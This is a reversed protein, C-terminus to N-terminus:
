GEDGKLITLCARGDEDRTSVCKLKARELRKNDNRVWLSFLMQARGQRRAKASVAPIAKFLCTQLIDKLRRAETQEEVGDPIQVYASYVARSIAVPVAFGEESAEKTVDVLEIEGTGDSRRYTYITNYTM